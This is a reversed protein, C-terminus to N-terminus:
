NKNKVRAKFLLIGSMMIVVAMSGAIVATFPSVIFDKKRVTLSFSYENASGNLNITQEDEYGDYAIFVKHKGPEVSEFEAIGNADTITKQVESHIEVKAGSVPHEDADVIKLKLRIGEEPVKSSEGLVLKSKDENNFDEKLSQSEINEAIASKTKASIENSWNGTACGNGARVRFYYTTDPFLSEVLYTRSGWGGINTSGYLYEGSKMGFELVYRDIPSEADTFYLRISNPNESIASYLVPAKAGPAAKDCEPAKNTLATNADDSGSSTETSSVVTDEIELADMIAQAIQGNGAQNFHTGTAKFTINIDWLNEIDGGARFQGVYPDTDVVIAKSYNSALSTLSANFSDRTQLQANTGSSWPLIKLVVVTTINNDAQIVDLMSKWNAISSSESRGKMIDIIGGELVVLKPKLNIVDDTFRALIQSTEQGGIGMNQYSYNLLNNLQREISSAIDVIATAEVFSYHAPHGAIISDGIFVAQPAQMYLEIPLFSTSSTQSEWSYGSGGPTTNDPALYSKGGSKAVFNYNTDSKEIRYGYYDGEQVGAIPSSLTVTSFDGSILNGVLNNSTGVFDYNSGNKRWIKLYLGTLNTIDVAYLRVQSITGDQRIRYKNGSTLYEKYGASNFGWQTGSSAATDYPAVIVLDSNATFAPFSVADAICPYKLVSVLFILLIIYWAYNRNLDFSFNKLINKNFM